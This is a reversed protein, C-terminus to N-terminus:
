PDAPPARAQAKGFSRRARAFIRGSASGKKANPNSNPNPPTDVPPPAGLHRSVPAEKEPSGQEEVLLQSLIAMEQQRVWALQGNQAATPQDGESGHAKAPKRKASSHGRPFSLSTRQLGEAARHRTDMVPAASPAALRRSVDVEPAVLVRSSEATAEEGSAPNPQLGMGSLAAKISPPILLAAEIPLSAPAPAAEPISPLEARSPPQRPPAAQIPM